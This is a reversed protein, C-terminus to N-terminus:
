LVGKLYKVKDECILNQCTRISSSRIVSVKVSKYVDGFYKVKKILVKKM